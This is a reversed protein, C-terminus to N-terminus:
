ASARRCSSSIPRHYVGAHAGVQHDSSGSANAEFYRQKANIRDLLEKGMPYGPCAELTACAYEECHGCTPLGKGAACTRAQCMSCYSCLRGDEVKCGDCIISEAPIEIGFQKSWEAAVRALEEMDDKQTALYASCESCELGCYATMEHM